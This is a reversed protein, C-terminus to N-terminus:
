RVARSYVVASSNLTQLFGLIARGRLRLRQAFAHVPIIGALYDLQGGNRGPGTVVQVPGFLIATANENYVSYDLAWSDDSIGFVMLHGDLGEVFFDLGNTGAGRVWTVNNFGLDRPTWMGPTNVAAKSCSTAQRM